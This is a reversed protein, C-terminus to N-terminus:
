FFDEKYFTLYQGNECCKVPFYFLYFTLIQVFMARIFLCREFRCCWVPVPVKFDYPDDSSDAAGSAPKSRRNPTAPRRGGPSGAGSTPTAPRRRASSRPTDPVKREDEEEEERGTAFLM